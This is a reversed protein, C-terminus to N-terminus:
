KQSKIFAVLARIDDPKAKLGFSAIAPAMIGPHYGKVIQADPDAISRELYADDATVSQGTTLSSAGGALGKFSPGAGAAGTLSHCSSCGDSAYLAKGRAVLAPTVQVPGLGAAKPTTTAPATSTAATTTTAAATPRTTGNAHHHGRHYGIAYAAILLGLIVGGGALGGLLWRWLGDSHEHGAAAPQDSM